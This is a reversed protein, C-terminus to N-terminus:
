QPLKGPGNPNYGAKVEAGDLFGDGDTDPNLPDTKYITVEQGDTLGDADTDPNNPDTGLQQEQLNTLGDQDPDAKPDPGPPIIVPAEVSSTAATTSTADTGWPHGFFDEYQKEIVANDREPVGQVDDPIIQSSSSSANQTTSTATQPSSPQSTQIGNDPSRTRLYWIGLGLGLVLMITVGGIIWYRRNNM